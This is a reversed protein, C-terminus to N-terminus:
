NRPSRLLLPHKSINPHCLLSQLHADWTGMTQYLCNSPYLSHLSSLNWRVTKSFCSCYKCHIVWMKLAAKTKVTTRELQSLSRHLYGPILLRANIQVVSLNCAALPWKRQKIPYVSGPKTISCTVDHMWFVCKCFTWFQIKKYEEWVTQDM